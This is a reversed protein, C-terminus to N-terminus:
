HPISDGKFVQIRIRKLISSHDFFYLAKRFAAFFFLTDKPLFWQLVHHGYKVWLFLNDTSPAKYAAIGRM